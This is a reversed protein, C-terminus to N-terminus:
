EIICIVKKVDEGLRRSSSSQNRAGTPKTAAPTRTGESKRRGRTRTVSTDTEEKQQEEDEDSRKRKRPSM